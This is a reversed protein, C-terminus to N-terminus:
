QRSALERQAYDAIRPMAGSGDDLNVDRNPRGGPGRVQRAREGISPKREPAAPKQPAHQVPPHYQYARELARMENMGDQKFREFAVDFAVGSPSRMPYGTKPHIKVKGQGDFEYYGPSQRFQNIQYQEQEKRLSGQIRTEVEKTRTDLDAVRAIGTIYKDVFAQPDRFFEVQRQDVARNFAHFRQVVGEPAGEIAVIRPKGDADKIQTLFREESPDWQPMEYKSGPIQPAPSPAPLEAPKAGGGQRELEELRMRLQQNEAFTGQFDELLEEDSGYVDMGNWGRGQLSAILARQADTQGPKVEPVDSQDDDAADPLDDLAADLDEDSLDDNAALDRVSNDALDALGQAPNGSDGGARLEQLTEQAASAMTPMGADTKNSGGKGRAM